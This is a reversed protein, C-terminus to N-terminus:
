IREDIVEKASAVAEKREEALCAACMEVLLTNKVHKYWRVALPAGCDRCEIVIEDRIIQIIENIM